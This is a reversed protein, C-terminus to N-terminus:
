KKVPIETNLFAPLHYGFVALMAVKADYFNSFNRQCMNFYPWTEVLFTLAGRVTGSFILNVSKVLAVFLSKLLGSETLYNFIQVWSFEGTEMM